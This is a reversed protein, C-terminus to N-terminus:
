CGSRKKQIITRVKDISATDGITSPIGIEQNEARHGLLKRLVKGSRM